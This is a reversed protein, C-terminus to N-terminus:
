DGLLKKVMAIFPEPDVPKEIYGDPPPVKKRSSIFNEFERSVGTIIIIPISKLQEDQKVTRYVAVGSKEPMSMDLSILNPPSDKVKALAEEGNEAEITSYGNDELVSTLFTRTDPDDDVVLVMKQEDAM